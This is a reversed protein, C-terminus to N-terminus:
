VLYKKKIEILLHDISLQPDVNNQVVKFRVDLSERLISSAKSDFGLRKKFFLAIQDIIFIPSKEEDGGKKTHVLNFISSDKNSILNNLSSSLEINDGTMSQSLVVVKARSRITPLLSNQNDVSLIFHIQENHEELTKLFANQAELSSRHFDYFVYAQPEKIQYVVEKKLEKIQSITYESAQPFISFFYSPSISHTKSYNNLYDQIKNQDTSVVILPIM